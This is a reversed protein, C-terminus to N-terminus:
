RWMYSGKPKLERVKDKGKVTAYDSTIARRRRGRGEGEGQAKGVNPILSHTGEITVSTLSSRSM